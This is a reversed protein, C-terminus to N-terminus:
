KKKRCLAVLFLNFKEVTVIKPQLLDSFTYFLLNELISGAVVIPANDHFGFCQNGKLVEECTCIEDCVHTAFKEQTSPNEADVDAGNPRFRTIEVHSISLVYVDFLHPWPRRAAHWLPRLPPAGRPRRRRLLRPNFLLL